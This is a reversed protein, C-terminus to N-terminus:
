TVFAVKTNNLKQYQEFPSLFGLRKRPRMNLKIEVQEVEEQTLQEFSMKKPFYQRILGNLNENAGREWSHYPAAFYYDIELQSSVLQHFAFEKGNDSTITHLWPKWEGLAEVIAQQVVSAEKSEVKRIRALGSARDNITVLAGRHGAGIVLDVELDGLREKLEVVPPRHEIGVRGAIMGRSDKASGRKRYRKGQNRLHGYLEGGKKKDQWVHQYIREHSVCEAGKLRARGAIQEPSYDRALQEEVYARVPGTFHVQRPKQGQRKEYKRQALEARYEGSRLDRNRRLERSIVSKDRGLYLAIDKQSQGLKNLTQIEYRQALTLHSM